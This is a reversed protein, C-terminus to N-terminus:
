YFDYSILLGGGVKPAGSSLGATAYGTLSITDSFLWSLSGFAEQSSPLLPSSPSDYDYSGIAVLHDNLEVSTGVSVSATNNLSYGSPQGPFLYGISIFPDWIGLQHSVEFDGGFDASGTGLRRRTSATPLKARATMDLQFGDLDDPPVTYSAALNLDGFGTRVDPAIDTRRNIVEPNGAADFIVLGRGSIRMYPISVNVRLNGLIASLTTLGLEVDTNRDTGYNGNSYDMGFTSQYRIDALQAFAADMPLLMLAIAVAFGSVALRYRDHRPPACNRPNVNSAQM